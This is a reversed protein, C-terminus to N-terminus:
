DIRGRRRLEMVIEAKRLQVQEPDLRHEIVIDAEGRLQRAKDVLVGFSTVRQLLSAEKIDSNTVSDLIDIAIAETGSILKSKIVESGLAVRMKLVEPHQIIRYYKRESIDYKKAIEAPKLKYLFRDALIGNLVDEPLPLNATNGNTNTLNNTM